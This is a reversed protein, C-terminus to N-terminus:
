SNHNWLTKERVATWIRKTLDKFYATPRIIMYTIGQKEAHRRCYDAAQEKAESFATV